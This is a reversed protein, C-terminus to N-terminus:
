VHTGAIVEYYYPAPPLVGLKYADELLDGDLINGIHRTYRKKTALRLLGAKDIAIDYGKENRTAKGAYETFQLLDGARFLMQCHHSTAYAAVGNYIVRTQQTKAINASVQKAGVSASYDELWQDPMFFGTEIKDAIERLQEITNDTGWRCAGRTPYGTVVSDPYTDYIRIQAELWGPYYFMDDDAYVMIQDEPYSRFLAAQAYTKGMNKTLTLADPKYEDRLWDRLVECSGNDWIHIHLWDPAHMRMSLLSTKIVELRHEHYGDENPLHVVVAAVCDLHNKLPKRKM